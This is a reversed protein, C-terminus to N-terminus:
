LKFVSIIIASYHCLAAVLVFVHWIAHNYRNGDKIYFFVGSIYLAVGAIVLIMITSPMREFFANGTFLFMCGMVLYLPISILVYKRILFLEYFIGAVALVWLTGLLILGTNTPMYFAVLPTYSGAILFYISIRDARKFKARRPYRECAHFLASCSFTIIFCVGYVLLATFILKDTSTWSYTLMLSLLLLGIVAGALHLRSNLRETSRNPLYSIHSQTRMTM